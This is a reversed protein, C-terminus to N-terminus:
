EEAYIHEFAEQWNVLHLQEHALDGFGGDGALQFVKCKLRRASALRKEHFLRYYGETNEIWLVVNWTEYNSYGNYKESMIVGNNGCTYLPNTTVGSPSAGLYM